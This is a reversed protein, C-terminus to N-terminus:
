DGDSIGDGDTDYKLLDTGHINVEAGDSLGDGDTDATNPDTGLECEQANTLGDNDFDEDGDNIGNDDTDAKLPDTGLYL